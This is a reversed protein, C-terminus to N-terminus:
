ALPLMVAFTTLGDKTEVTIKGGHSEIATKAIALGLGYGGAKGEGRARDREVREFRGFVRGKDGDPIGVGNDTVSLRCSGGEATLAVAIKGGPADGYRKHTYKVANDLLNSVARRIEERRGEIPVNATFDAEWEISEARASKKTEGTEVAVVESLDFRETKATPVGSELKSLLLLDDVLVTMRERQRLIEKLYPEREEGASDDMSMLLETAVSISALPTQFEHGADAVFSKRAEEAVHRDTVDNLVLLLERKGAAGAKESTGVRVARAEYFREANRQRLTIRVSRPEGGLNERTRAVLDTLEPNRLAGDVPSGAAADPACRLLPIFWDNVYSVIGDAGVLLLGCPASSVVTKLLGRENELESTMKAQAEANEKLTRSLEEIELSGGLPYYASEGRSTARSAATLKRIPRTVRRVGTVGALLVVFGAVAMAVFINVRVRSLVRYYRSMPLSCRIVYTEGTMRDKTRVAYYLYPTRTTESYRRDSGSGTEMARRVEIREMHNDLDGLQAPSIESDALVGGGADIITIRVGLLEAWKALDEESIPGGDYIGSKQAGMINEIVVADRALDGIMSDDITRRMDYSVMFWSALLGLALAFCLLATLKGALTRPGSASVRM